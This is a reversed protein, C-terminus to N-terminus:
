ICERRAVLDIRCKRRRMSEALLRHGAAFPYRLLGRLHILGSRGCFGAMPRPRTTDPAWGISSREQLSNRIRSLSTRLSRSKPDRAGFVRWLLRESIQASLCFRAWLPCGYRELLSYCFEALVLYVISLVQGTIVLLSAFLFHLQFRM